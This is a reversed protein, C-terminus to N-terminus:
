RAETELDASHGNLTLAPPSDFPEPAGAAKVSASAAAKRSRANNARGKPKTTPPEALSYAYNSSIAFNEGENAERFLDAALKHECYGHLLDIDQDSDKCCGEADVVFFGSGHDTGVVYHGERNPVASIRGRTVIQRASELRMALTDIRQIHPIDTAEKSRPFGLFHMRM